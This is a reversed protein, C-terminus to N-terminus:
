APCTIREICGNDNNRPNNVRSSVPWLDLVNDHTRDLLQLSVPNSSDLWQRWENEELIVPMRDHVPQMERNAASTIITCTVFPSSSPEPPQWIDWLAAMGMPRNDKRHIYWPEKNRNAVQKWEYFGSAPVICHRRNLMHRFFPKVSLSETRANIPRIKPLEKSWHPIVGWRAISLRNCPPDGLLTVVPEDPTINWNQRYSFGPTEEFPLELQRLQEIFFSLEFFGFRGCM